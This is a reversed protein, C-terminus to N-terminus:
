AETPLPLIILDFQGERAEAVIAAGTSTQLELIHLDRGLQRAREQDQHIIAKGDVGEPGSVLPAMTLPLAPDLMTLVAQFLDSDASTGSHVLLVRSVGVGAARLSPMSAGGCVAPGAAASGGKRPSTTCVPLGDAITKALPCLEDGQGSRGPRPRSSM